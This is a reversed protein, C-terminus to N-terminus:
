ENISKMFNAYFRLNHISALRYGVGENIKLLYRLYNRTVTKCTLCDCTKDVPDQDGDYRTNNLRLVSYNEFEEDGEGSNVYLYGHRANRTPLVTDFLDWGNEIAFNINDPTGVGLAYRLKDKPLNEALLQLLEKYFGGKDTYDWSRKEKLPIGGLGYIDFGINVLEETSKVRYDFNSGGQVVATLLPRKVEKNNFDDETLSNLRLFEDKARRAWNTTREVSRKIASLSADNMLPEDLVVRMDSGIDQQIQMSTEPSLFKYEGNTYDKFSCGAETIKNGSDKNRYILSFVQFGGSDTLVPKDYNAFKHFGGYSAIKESGVKQELHLTNTVIAKIGTKNLDEFSVNSISGYTADPMFIPFNVDGHSTSIKGTRKSTPYFTIM